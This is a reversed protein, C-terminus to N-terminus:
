LVSNVKADVPRSAALVMRTESPKNTKKSGMFHYKFRQKLPIILPELPDPNKLDMPLRSLLDSDDIRIDVLSRYLCVFTKIKSADDVSSNSGFVTGKKVIGLSSAETKSTLVCQPFHLLQLHANLSDQWLSLCVQRTFVLVSFAYGRLHRCQSSHILHSVILVLMSHCQVLASANSALKSSDDNSKDSKSLRKVREGITEIVQSWKVYQLGRDLAILEQFEEDLNDDKEEFENRLLQLKVQTQKLEELKDETANLKDCIEDLRLSTPVRRGEDEEMGAKTMM